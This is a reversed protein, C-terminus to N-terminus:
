TTKALPAADPWLYQLWGSAGGNPRFRWLLTAAGGICMHLMDSAAGGHLLCIWRVLPAEALGFIGADPLLRGESAGFWALPAGVLGHANCAAAPVRTHVLGSASYWALPVMGPRLQPAVGVTLSAGM